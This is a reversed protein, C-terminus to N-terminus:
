IVFDVVTTMESKDRIVVDSRHYVVSLPPVSNVLWVNGGIVSSRGVKTDGGLICSGAYIIVDDEITPHRKVGESEKRVALAGLTVGQYIRVHNGIITTEGVVVGTGHDIFFPSGISAGPHIDIGTKNHAYETIVRPVIPVKLKSLEHALRYVTIAYFGPYAIIVEEISEAAPDSKLFFEADQILKNYVTPLSDFFRQVISAADLQYRSSIPQLIESLTRHLREEKEDAVEYHYTFTSEIPFLLDIIEDTFKYIVARSPLKSFDIKPSPEIRM